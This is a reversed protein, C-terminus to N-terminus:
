ALPAFGADLTVDTQGAVLAFVETEGGANIDSDVTDDSGVNSPTTQLGAPVTYRLRYSGPAVNTFEYQGGADTTTTALVAGAPDTSRRNRM